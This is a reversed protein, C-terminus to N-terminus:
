APLSGREHEPIYHREIYLSNDLSFVRTPNKLDSMQVLIQNEELALVKGFRLYASNSCRRDPKAFYDGVLVARDNVFVFEPRM